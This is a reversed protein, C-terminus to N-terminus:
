LCLVVLTKQEEHGGHESPVLGFIEVKKSISSLTEQM